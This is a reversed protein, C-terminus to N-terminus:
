EINCKIIIYEFGYINKIFLSLDVTDSILVENDAHDRYVIDTILYRYRNGTMDTFYITNGVSLEKAFTIQGKQNTAGVVLSGDYVSGYYRCPYQDSKGWDGGVPFSYGAEEFELIGIFDNGGIELTPMRSDTREEPVASQPPPILSTIKELYDGIRDAYIGASVQWWILLAVAGVMLICGLTFCGNRLSKKGFKNM